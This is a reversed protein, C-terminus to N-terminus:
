VVCLEGMFAFYLTYSKLDTKHDIKERCAKLVDFALGMDVRGGVIM